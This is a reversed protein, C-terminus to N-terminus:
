DWPGPWARPPQGDTQRVLEEIDGEMAGIIRAANQYARTEFPNAGTLELLNGTDDLIAAVQAKDM